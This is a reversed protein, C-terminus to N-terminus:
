WVAGPVEEDLMVLLGPPSRSKEMVHILDQNDVFESLYM